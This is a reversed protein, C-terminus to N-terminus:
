VSHVLMEVLKSNNGSYLINESKGGNNIKVIKLIVLMVILNVTLLVTLFIDFFRIQGLQALAKKGNSNASSNYEVKSLEIPKAATENTAIDKEIKQNLKTQESSDDSLRITITDLTLYQEMYEKLFQDFRQFNETIGQKCSKEIVSKLWSKGSWEIWYSIKLFCGISVDIEPDPKNWWILFRTKIQFLNGNPVNLTKTTSIWEICEEDYRVITEEVECRTSKPGISYNLKKVYSYYRHGNVYPGYPTVNTSEDAELLKKQFALEDGSFLLEFLMGPSLQKFEQEKLLYENEKLPPSAFEINPHKKFYPGNFKYNLSIDKKFKYVPVTERLGKVHEKAEEEEEEEESTGYEESTEEEELILNDEEIDISNILNEIRIDNAMIEVDDHIKNSEILLNYLSPIMVVNSDINQKVNKWLTFILKFVHNISDFGNLQIKGLHTEIIIFKGDNDDNDNINEIINPDSPSTKNNGSTISINSNSSSNNSAGVNTSYLISSECLIINVIQQFSIQVRTCLWGHQHNKTNFCLHDKSIYLTGIYLCITNPMIGDSNIISKQNLAGSSIVKTDETLTFEHNQKGGVINLSDGRHLVCDFEAILLEDLPITNFLQHFRENKANTSINNYFISMLVNTYTKGGSQRSKNWCNKGYFGTAEIKVPSIVPQSKRSLLPWLMSSTDKNM